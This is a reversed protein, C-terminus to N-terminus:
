ILSTKYRVVKDAPLCDLELFQKIKFVEFRHAFDIFNYTWSPGAAV